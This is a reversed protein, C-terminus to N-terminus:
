ICLRAAQEDGIDGSELLVQPGTRFWRHQRHAQSPISPKVNDLSDLPPYVRKRPKRSPDLFAINDDRDLSPLPRTIHDHVSIHIFLWGGREIGLVPPLIRLNRLWGRIQAQSFLKRPQLHINHKSRGTYVLILCLWREHVDKFM